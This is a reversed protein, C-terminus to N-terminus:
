TDIVNAAIIKLSLPYLQHKHSQQTGKCAEYWPSDDFFSDQDLGSRLLESTAMHQNFHLLSVTGLIHAGSSM